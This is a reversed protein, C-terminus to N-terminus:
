KKQTTLVRSQLITRKRSICNKFQSLKGTITKHIPDRFLFDRRLLSPPMVFGYEPPRINDRAYSNNEDCLLGQKWRLIAMVFKRTKYVHSNLNSSTM